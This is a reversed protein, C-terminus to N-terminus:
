FFFDGSFIGFDVEFPPGTLSVRGAGPLTVSLEGKWTKSGDPSALYTGAGHFPPPPAVRAETLADDHTFKGGAGFLIAVRVIAMRGRSTEAEFLYDNKDSRSEIAAFQASSIGHHWAASLIAHESGGHASPPILAPRKALPRQSHRGACQPRAERVSGKARHTDVTVYGGEGRFRFEGVYTGRRVLFPRHGRCFRRPDAGSAALPQFRMSVRGFSGFSAQLRNRTATGRVVYASAALGHGRAVLVGVSEGLGVVAINYGGKAKVQFEPHFAPSAREGEIREGTLKQILERARLLSPQPELPSAGASSAGWLCALALVAMSLACV